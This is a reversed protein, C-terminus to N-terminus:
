YEMQIIRQGHEEERRMALDGSPPERLYMHWRDRRRKRTQLGQPVEALKRRHCPGRGVRRKRRAEVGVAQRCYVAGWSPLPGHKM